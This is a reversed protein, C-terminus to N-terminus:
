NNNYLNRQLKMLSTQSYRPSKPARRGRCTVWFKQLKNHPSLALSAFSVAGEVSLFVSEKRIGGM